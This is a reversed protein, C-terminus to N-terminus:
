AYSQVELMNWRALWQCNWCLIRYKWPQFEKIADVYASRNDGRGKKGVSHIHDLTLLQLPEYIGCGLCAGGYSAIFQLRNYRRADTVIERRRVPNDKNWKAARRIARAPEDKYSKPWKGVM